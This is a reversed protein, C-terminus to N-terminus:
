GNLHNRGEKYIRQYEKELAYRWWYQYVMSHFMKSCNDLFLRHEPNSMDLIFEEFLPKDKFLRLVLVGSVDAINNYRLMERYAALQLCYRFSIHTSTKFDILWPKGNISLLMDYTGGYYPCSLKFEQGLVKVENNSSIQDWWKEFANIPNMPVDPPLEEGKIYKELAEHVVTGYDAYMNLTEKYSKHKFGLSNAWQVIYDEHMCASIIQTVRPVINKNCTYSSEFSSRDLELVDKLKFKDNNM